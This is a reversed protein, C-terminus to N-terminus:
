DCRGVTSARPRTTPRKATSRAPDLRLYRSFSLHTLADWGRPGGKATAAGQDRRLHTAVGPADGLIAAVHISRQALAPHAALLADAEDLTGSGHWTDLPVCAAEVFADCPDSGSAAMAALM